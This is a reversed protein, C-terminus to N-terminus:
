GTKFIQQFKLQNKWSGATASGPMLQQTACSLLRLHALRLYIKTNFSQFQLFFCQLDGKLGVNAM